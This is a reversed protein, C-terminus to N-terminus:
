VTPIVVQPPLWKEKDQEVRPDCFFSSSGALGRESLPMLSTFFTADKINPNFFLPLLLVGYSLNRALCVASIMASPKLM